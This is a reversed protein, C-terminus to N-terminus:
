ENNMEEWLEFVPNQTIERVNGRHLEIYSDPWDFSGPENLPQLEADWEEPAELILFQLSEALGKDKVSVPVERTFGTAAGINGCSCSVLALIALTALILKTKM